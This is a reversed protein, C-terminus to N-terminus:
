RRSERGRHLEQRKKEVFSWMEDMQVEPVTLDRVLHDHVKKAHRGVRTVIRGVADRSVGTLRSTKRIGTGEALHSVVSIIKKHRVRLGFLLPTMDNRFSRVVSDAVFFDYAIQETVVDFM